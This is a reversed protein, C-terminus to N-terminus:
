IASVLIRVAESINDSKMISTGVLFADAGCARLSRIEQPKSIGSETVIPINYDPPDAMISETNKVDVKLTNLDRNNIGVMDARSRLASEFEPRTHAELLVGMKHSHALEILGDRADTDSEFVSEILLVYDAGMQAGAEIQRPDIIIDKMLIPVDLAARVRALNEPSGGFSHPQTLVSLAVAGGKIMQRAVDVPDLSSCIDGESPSAFKVETIIPANTAERVTRVLDIGSMKHNTVSDYVGDDLAHQSNKVLMELINNM